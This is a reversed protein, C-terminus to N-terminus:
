SPDPRHRHGDFTGLCTLRGTRDPLRTGPALADAYILVCTTALGMADEVAEAIRPPFVHALRPQPDAGCIVEVEELDLGPMADMLHAFVLPQSELAGIFVAIRTPELAM